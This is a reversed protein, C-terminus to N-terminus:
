LLDERVWFGFDSWQNFTLPVSVILIFCGLFLPKGFLRFLLEFNFSFYGKQLCLNKKNVVFSTPSFPGSFRVAGGGEKPCYGFSFGRKWPFNGLLRKDFYKPWLLWKHSEETLAKSSVSGQAALRAWEQDEMCMRFFVGGSFFVNLFFFVGDLLQYSDEDICM